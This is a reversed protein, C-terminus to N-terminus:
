AVMRQNLGAIRVRGDAFVLESISAPDIDLVAYLSFPLGLYHLIAARIPEAHSVLVIHGGMNAALHREIHGVVRRAVDAIREGAPTQARDREANWTTWAPDRDLEEFPKGSWVGFDVEDLAEITEVGVGCREAIPRATEVTRQQPSSHVATISERALRDALREAQAHGKNTLTVGPTRGALVTAGLSHIAHRVLFVKTV